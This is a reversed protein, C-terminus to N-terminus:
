DDKVLLPLPTIGAERALVIDILADFEIKMAFNDLANERSESFSAQWTLGTTEVPVLSSERILHRIEDFADVYGIYAERAEGSGDEPSSEKPGLAIPQQSSLQRYTEHAREGRWYGVCAHGQFLFVVPYIDVYELCAAFLLALDICTGRKGDITQSPTRLRQSSETYSPPPNIYSLRTDHQIAWWIASVQADVAAFEGKDEHVSQYGDFGAGQDDALAILYRQALDVIRLVAPDRPLVFSPLWRGDTQNDRWENTPLLSVRHTEQYLIESGVKIEVFMSTHVREDISRILAATLPVRVKDRLRTVPKSLQFSAQYPFSDRGVHLEVRLRVDPLAPEQLKAIVFTEFLDRNNHLMSYNLEQVPAIQPEIWERLVLHKEQGEQGQEKVRAEIVRPLMEALSRAGSPKDFDDFLSYESWLVVGSGRLDENLERLSNWAFQFAVLPQCTDSSSWARYFEALFLEALGDDFTDQFGIALEAGAAVTRAALRAASNYVNFAVFRPRHGEATLLDAIRGASVFKIRDGTQIELPLGDPVRVPSEGGLIGLVQAAQHNDVGAVHIVEPKRMIVEKELQRESPDELPQSAGPTCDGLLWAPVLRREAEFGFDARLEGPTTEVFLLSAPKKTHRRRRRGSDLYRVITLPEDRWPRTAATLVYEWPLIRGEWGTSEVEYTMGVEIFAAKALAKLDGRGLGLGRLDRALAEGHKDSQAGDTKWRRRYRAVYSWHMAM